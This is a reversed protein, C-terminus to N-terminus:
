VVSKRDQNPFYRYLTARSCEAARAVDIMTAKEVGHEAFTRGAADLIKDVAVDVDRHRLWGTHSM